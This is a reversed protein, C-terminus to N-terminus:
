DDELGGFIASVHEAIAVENASTPTFAPSTIEVRKVGAARLRYSLETPNIDRGLKEKQWEIYGEVAKEAASQIAAANTVNKRSIYYTCELNYKAQTPASVTVKDTLPRVNDADLKEEVMALTEEGPLVGGSLLPCVLVEGPAPSTVSVDSILASASKAHYAYAGDPGAVSFHEPANQIRERYNEDSETDAGGESKTTNVMAALFPVPDVIKNIEGAIFGNGTEGTETCTAEADTYLAGANIVADADIAFYVEGDPTARTGKPIVTATDRAASLSLRLTTKAASAPLREAGVLVGIHDLYDGQSYALLNMKASQDILLRQQIILAEVGLLFLRLPDARHLKRGLLAEVTTLVNLEMEAPNAKAFAIDPLNELPM